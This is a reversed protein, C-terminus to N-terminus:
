LETSEGALKMAKAWMSSILDCYLLALPFRKGWEFNYAYCLLRTCECFNHPLLDRARRDSVRVCLRTLRRMRDVVEDCSYWGSDGIPVTLHGLVCDGLDCDGDFRMHIMDISHALASFMRRESEPHLRISETVCTAVCHTLQHLSALFPEPRADCAMRVRKEIEAICEVAFRGCAEKDDAEPLDPMEFWCIDEYAFGVIGKFDPCGSEDGGLRMSSTSVAELAHLCGLVIQPSVWRMGTRYRTYCHMVRVLADAFVTGATELTASEAAEAEHSLSLLVRKMRHGASRSAGHYLRQTLPTWKEYENRLTFLSCGERDFVVDHLRNVFVAFSKMLATFRRDNPKDEMARRFHRGVEGAIRNLNSFDRSRSLREVERTAHRILGVAGVGKSVAKESRVVGTIRRMKMKSM